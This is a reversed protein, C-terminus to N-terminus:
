RKKRKSPRAGSKRAESLAIAIAQKPNTVKPGNKSGSHLDGKKFESMIVHIKTKKKEDKKKKKKDDKYQAREIREHIKEDKKMEKEAIHHLKEEQRHLKSVKNKKM